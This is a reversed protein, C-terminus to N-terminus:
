PGGSSLHRKKSVDRNIPSPYSIAKASPLIVTAALLHYLRRYRQFLLVALIILIISTALNFYLITSYLISHTNEAIFSPDLLISDALDHFIRKNGKDKLAQLLTTLTYHSQNDRAIYSSSNYRHMNFHPLNIPLSASFLTDGFFSQHQTADRLHQLLILNVPHLKTIVNSTNHCPQLLPPIFVDPTRLVCLCPINIICFKCGPIIRSLFQCHLNVRQMNILLTQKNSFPCVQPTLKDPMYRFDCHQKVFDKQNMYIASICSPKTIPTYPLQRPCHKQALGKCSLWESHTLIIYYDEDASISFYPPVDLLQTAHNNSEHVPLPLSLTQFVTFKTTSSSVPFKLTIYM